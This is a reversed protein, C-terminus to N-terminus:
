RYRPAQQRLLSPRICYAAPLERQVCGGEVVFQKNVRLVANKITTTTAKLEMKKEKKKERWQRTVRHPNQCRNHESKPGICGYMERIAIFPIQWINMHTCLKISLSDNLLLWDIVFHSLSVFGFLYLVFGLWFFFFHSSVHAPFECASPWTLMKAFAMSRDDDGGVPSHRLWLCFVREFEVWVVSLQTRCWFRFIYVLFCILGMERCCIYTPSLAVAISKVTTETRGSFYKTSWIASQAISFLM